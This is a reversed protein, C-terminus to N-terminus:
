ELPQPKGRVYMRQCVCVVVVMLTKNALYRFCVDSYLALYSLIVGWSLECGDWPVVGVGKGPDLSTAFELHPRQDLLWDGATCAATYNTSVIKSM